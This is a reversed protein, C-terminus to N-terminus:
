LEEVIEKIDLGLDKKLEEITGLNVFDNIISAIPRKNPSLALLSNTLCPSLLATISPINVFTDSLTVSIRWSSPISSSSKKVILLSIYSFPLLRHLTLPLLTLKDNRWSSLEVNPLIWM